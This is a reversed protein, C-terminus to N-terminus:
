PFRRFWTGSLLAGALMFVIGGAAAVATVEVTKHRNGVRSGLAEYTSKVDVNAAGQSFRGGSTRAILQLPAPQVPVQIRETFGSKLPQLVVGDPTGLAVTSIPIKMQRAWAAAQQPSYRGATQGGDSLVIVVAPPRTGKKQTGKVSRGVNVAKVVADALSTGQPGAKANAIVARVSTLDHTPPASVAVHDTFTIVSVRYGSPLADVYRLAVAKAAALRTPLSDRAAMSGSEDLVLVVTAEQRKVTITATPRAFGVLLLAVGVLLLAVPLHRRWPAPRDTMNPLLSPAAWASARRDRRRDLWLYGAIAAPVILLFVLLVPAFFSM